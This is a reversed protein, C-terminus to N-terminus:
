IQFAEHLISQKLAKLDVTQQSQIAQLAKVKESFADLRKLIKRQEVLPPLQIKLKYIQNRNIGPKVGVAYQTLNLSKFLYYAFGVDYKDNSTVYYTVDTPWYKGSVRIVEGASGKRGVILGEGEVLYKNSKGLEGNAGYVSYLGSNSRESRDLGKGYNLTFIEGFDNEKWGRSEPGSFIENLATFLLQDTIAANEARLRAAEDIKQFAKEIRAVIKRQESTSPIPIKINRIIQMNLGQRKDQGTLARIELYRGNLNHFLYEPLLVDEKPSIAVLSQNCTAETRLIAVTGRTKGQGNLAIM